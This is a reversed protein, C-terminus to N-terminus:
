EASAQGGLRAYVPLGAGIEAGANTLYPVDMVIKSQRAAKRAASPSPEECSREATASSPVTFRAVRADLRVAGDLDCASQLAWWFPNVM